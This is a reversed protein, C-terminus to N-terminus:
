KGTKWQRALRKAEGVQKISMKKAVGKKLEIAQKSGQSSALEFWMYALV